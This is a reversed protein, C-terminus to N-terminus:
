SGRITMGIRVADAAGPLAGTGAAVAAAANTGAASAPITIVAAAANSASNQTGSYTASGTSSVIEYGAAAFGFLTNTWPTGPVSILNAATDVCGIFIENANSTTGTPGAGWNASAGTGTALAQDVPSSVGAIEYAVIGGDSADVVLNAGSVVVSTSAITCAFDAWMACFCLGQQVSSGTVAAFNDAAGGITVGTVSGANAFSMVAVVLTNGATTNAGFTVTTTNSSATQVVSIAV